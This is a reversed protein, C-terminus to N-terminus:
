KGQPAVDLEIKHIFPTVTGQNTIRVGIAATPAIAPNYWSLTEGSDLNTGVIFSNQGSSDAMVEGDIGILDIKFQMGAAVPELYIRVEKPTVKKFFLQQLTEYIGPLANESNIPYLNFRYFNYSTASGNYEITSYYLKGKSIINAAYGSNAGGYFFNSVTKMSPIKMVDSTGTLAAAQQLLRYHAPAISQDFQGYMQLTAVLKSGDYEPAMWALLNGVSALANPLPYQDNEITLLKQQPTGLTASIADNGFLYEFSSFTEYSSMNYGPLSIFSTAGADIGNWYAVSSDISGAQTTDPTTALISNMTDRVTTMVLYTGDATFALDRVQYDSPFAPSIKTYTTVLLTSDIEAINNANGAYLKGIFLNLPRPVAQAWSGTSGVFTEGTGDFALKTVGMDSGIFIFGSYFEISGGMTFTPSQSTLTTLLVPTDYNPNHGSPDNVQIKYVRAASGIAYVYLIGNEVREKQDLILDTIVSGKISVPVDLFSLTTPKNFPNYGFSTDYRAYGSNIDGNPIRTLNGSFNTLEIRQIPDIQAQQNPDM